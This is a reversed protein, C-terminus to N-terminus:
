LSRSPVIRVGDKSIFNTQKVQPYISVSASFNPLTAPSLNLATILSAKRVLNIGSDETGTAPTANQTGYPLQDSSTWHLDKNWFRHYDPM